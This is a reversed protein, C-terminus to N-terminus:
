KDPYCEWTTTLFTEDGISTGTYGKLDVNYMQRMHRVLDIETKFSKGAYGAVVMQHNCPRHITKFCYPTINAM